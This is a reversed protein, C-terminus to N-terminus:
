MRLDFAVIRENQFVRAHDLARRLEGYHDLWWFSLWSFVLYEVGGARARALGTLADADGTPAGLGIGDREPFPSVIRGHIVAALQYADALAVRAGAPIAAEIDQAARYSTRLHEVKALYLRPHVLSPPRSSPRGRPEASQDVFVLVNQAYWWDVLDNDWVRPRLWDVVDFRREAFLRIWYEPWQENMHGVGGQHPIAASFVVLPGLRTLADVFADSCEAPLHEAVELSMVLDFRRGVRLPQRLDVARFLGASIELADISVHPGDVGFVDEVGHQQFVSLWTGVGCGVDIVSKPRALELLLPVVVHASRRAGPVIGAYFGPTYPSGGVSM